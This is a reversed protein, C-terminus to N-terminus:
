VDQVHHKLDEKSQRARRLLWLLDGVLPEPLLAPIPAHQVLDVILVAVVVRLSLFRVREPRKPVVPVLEPVDELLLELVRGLFGVPALRTFRTVTRLVSPPWGETLVPFAKVLFPHHPPRTLLLLVLVRMVVELLPRVSLRELLEHVTQKLLLVITPPPSKPRVSHVVDEIEHVGLQESPLRVM